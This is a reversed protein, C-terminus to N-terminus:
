GQALTICQVKGKCVINDLADRTELKIDLGQHNSVLYEILTHYKQYGTETFWCTSDVGPHKKYWTPEKVYRGFYRREDPNLFSFIGKYEGNVDKAVYRYYM